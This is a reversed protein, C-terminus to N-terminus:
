QPRYSRAQAEDEFGIAELLRDGDFRYLLWVTRPDADERRYERRLSSM